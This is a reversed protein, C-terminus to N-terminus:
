LSMANRNRHLVALCSQRLFELEKSGHSNQRLRSDSHLGVIVRDLELEAASVSKAIAKHGLGLSCTDRKRLLAFHQVLGTIPTAIRSTSPDDRKVNVVNLIDGFIPPVSRFVQKWKAWRTVREVM